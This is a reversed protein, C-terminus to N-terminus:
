RRSTKYLALRDEGRKLKQGCFPRSRLLGIHLCNYVVLLILIELRIPIQSFLTSLYIYENNTIGTQPTYFSYLVYAV